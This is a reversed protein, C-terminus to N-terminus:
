AAAPMQVVRVGDDHSPRGARDAGRPSSTRGNWGTPRRGTAGENDGIHFHSVSPSPISRRTAPALSTAPGRAHSTICYDARLTRHGVSNSTTGHGTADHSKKGHHHRPAWPTTPCHADHARSGRKMLTVNMHKEDRRRDKEPCPEPDPVALHYESQKDVM